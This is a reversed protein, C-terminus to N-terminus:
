KTQVMNERENNGGSGLSSDLNLYDTHLSTLFLSSKPRYFNRRVKVRGTPNIGICYM